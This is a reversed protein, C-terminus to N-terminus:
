PHVYVRVSPCKFSAKNPRSQRLTSSVIVFTLDTKQEDCVNAITQAFFLATYRCMTSFAWGSQM